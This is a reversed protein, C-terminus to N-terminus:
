ECYLVGCRFTGDGFRPGEVLCTAAFRLGTLAPLTAPRELSARAQAAEAV